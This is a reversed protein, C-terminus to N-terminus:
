AVKLVGEHDHRWARPFAVALRWSVFPLLGLFSGKPYHESEDAPKNKEIEWQMLGLCGPAAIYIEM